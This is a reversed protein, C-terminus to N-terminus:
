TASGAGAPSVQQRHRVVGGWTSLARRLLGSRYSAASLRARHAAGVAGRWASLAKAGLNGVMFWLARQGLARCHAAAAANDRWAGLALAAPGLRLRGAARRCARAAGGESGAAFLLALRQQHRRLAGRRQAAERWGGFSGTLTAVLIRRLFRAAGLTVESRLRWSGFAAALLQHRLRGVVRAMLRESRGLAQRGALAQGRWTTLAARLLREGALAAAARKQLCHLAHARWSRWARSLSAHM